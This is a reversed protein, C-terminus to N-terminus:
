GDPLGALLGARHHEQHEGIKHNTFVNEKQERSVIVGNEIEYIIFGNCRGIHGTVTMFDDTAIGIKMKNEM